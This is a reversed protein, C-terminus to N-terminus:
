IKSTAENNDIISKEKKKPTLPTNINNNIDLKKVKALRHDKNVVKLPDNLTKIVLKPEFM